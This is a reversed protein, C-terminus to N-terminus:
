LQFCAAMFHTIREEVSFVPPRCTPPEIEKQKTNKLPLPPHMPNLCLSVLYFFFFEM